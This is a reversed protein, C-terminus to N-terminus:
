KPDPVDDPVRFYYRLIKNAIPVAVLAGNGGGEVFVAMAIQPNDMPAFTIFWAHAPKHGSADMEGYEATGTKGAAQLYAEPLNLGRATGRTVAARMGQKIVELHAKDVSVRRIIQPQFTRVIRGDADLVQRVIQPKYLVGGNAIVAAANAMQLPSALLFAQGIAMNYTDGTVWPVGLKNWPQALKWANSPVLGATEGPLDIGSKTGLGFDRAYRALRTPDAGPDLGVFNEFGGAVTYFFVDCSQALGEVVNITGHGEPLWCPFTWTTNPSYKDPITLKGQCTILTNKTIVGEQLGAAATVIKFTSGPPYAGGIARNFLPRLPDETLRALDDPRVEGSFLNSDYTPLSVMALVEGTQPNLAVVAGAKVGAKRIGEALAEYAKRQLGLDITLVLNYGATPTIIAEPFVRVERGAADVEIQKKGKKGRLEEEHTLEVGTKGVKDNLDYIDKNAQYEQQSIRGVHGLIHAMLPGELYQRVPEIGVTVGPLNLHEEEIIFATDREVNSRIVVPQFPSSRGNQVQRAIWSADMQLLSALRNFVEEDTILGNNADQGNSRRGSPLDAPVISVAFSPVNRVLLVGQRDYIVGRQAPISVIRLRNLDARQRYTEGQVIQLHWLQGSLLVFGIIIILRLGLLRWRSLNM